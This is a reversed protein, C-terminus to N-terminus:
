RRGFFMTLVPCPIASKSRELDNFIRHRRVISATSALTKVSSLVIAVAHSVSSLLRGSM